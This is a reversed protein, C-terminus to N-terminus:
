FDGIYDFLYKLQKDIFYNTLDKKVPEKQYELLIAEQLEVPTRSLDIVERNRQLHNIWGLNTFDDELESPTMLMWAAIKKQTMPKQRVKNVLCDGPMMANPIGDSSDGKFIHEKLYDAGNGVIWHNNIFDWQKVNGWQQLQIFDKDRSVIIIQNDSNLDTAMTLTITGIVDDAETRSIEIIKYPFNDRLENKVTDIHQHVLAWDISSEERAKRRNAKYYPFVERRWSNSSDIAIVIESNYGFKTKLSRISNLVTHRFFDLSIDVEKQIFINALAIASYDLLLINM